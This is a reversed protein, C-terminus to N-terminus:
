VYNTIVKLNVNLILCLLADRNCRLVQIIVHGFMAREARFANHQEVCPPRLQVPRLLRPVVVVRGTQVVTSDAPKNVLGFVLNSNAHVSNM